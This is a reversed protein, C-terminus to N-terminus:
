PKASQPLTQASATVIQPSILFLRETHDKTVTDGRFLHGLLPISGLLPIKNTSRTNEHRVLGGLLLGEGADIIAQTNVANNVVSPVALQLQQGNANVTPQNSVQVTGDDIEVLLRIRQRGNDVIMHPTVRLVTGAVVNYLDEDFAGSVPFYITQTSEIVAEVDNLTVVQPRQVINTIGEQELANVRIMFNSADSIISNIQLGSLAGAADLPHIGGGFASGTNGHQYTWDIGLQRANNKDIDIVTADLEIIQSEVDLQRVLDEYMPIRDPFDRIIIANRYPDAVIRPSEGGELSATFASLANPSTASAAGNTEGPSTGGSSGSGAAGNASAQGMTSGSQPGSQPYQGTLQGLRDTLSALGRGRLGRVTTSAPTTEGLGGLANPQAVLERMITAVGPIVTRQGGASFTTDAAWAYKLPIFRLTIRQSTPESVSTRVRRGLATSLQTLQDLFRPTGSASVLGTDTRIHVTDNNDTLGFGVSAQRFAEVRSPDIQYYRSSLERTKYIFAVSGDYYGVLGNSDAIKKFVAAADGERPGNLTGSEEQVAESISVAVGLDDFFRKLFDKLPEAQLQYSVKENPFPIRAAHAASCAVCLLAVGV